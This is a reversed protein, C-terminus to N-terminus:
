LALPLTIVEGDEKKIQALLWQETKAPRLTGSVRQGPYVYRRLADHRCAATKKQTPCLDLGVIGARVNGDNTLTIAKDTRAARLSLHAERPLVRVLAAFVVNLTLAARPRSAAESAAPQTTEPSVGEFYLRYLTEEAPPALQTLRIAKNGGGPVIVKNPSVILSTEQWSAVPTETENATGPNSIKKVTVKIYQTDRTKAYIRILGDKGATVATSMPYVMFNASAPLCALLAISLTAFSFLRTLYAHMM